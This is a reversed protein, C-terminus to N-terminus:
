KYRRSSSRRFSGAKIKALISFPPPTRPPEPLKNQRDLSIKYYNKKRSEATSYQYSDEVYGLSKKPLDLKNMKTIPSNIYINLQEEIIESFPSLSRERGTEEEPPTSVGNIKKCSEELSNNGYRLNEAKKSLKSLLKSKSISKKSSSKRRKLDKPARRTVRPTSSPFDKTNFISSSHKSIDRIPSKSFSLMEHIEHNSIHSLLKERSLSPRQTVRSLIGGSKLKRKPFCPVLIRNAM